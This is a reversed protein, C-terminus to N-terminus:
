QASSSSDEFVKQLNQVATQRLSSSEVAKATGQAVKNIMGQSVQVKIGVAQVVLLIAEVIISAYQMITAYEVDNLTELKMTQKFIKGDRTFEVTHKGAKKKNISIKYTPITLGEEIMKIRHPPLHDALKEPNKDIDQIQEMKKPLM